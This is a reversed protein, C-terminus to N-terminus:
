MTEELQAQTEGAARKAAVYNGTALGMKAEAVAAEYKRKDAWDASESIAGKGLDRCPNAADAYFENGGPGVLCNITHKLHKHVGATSEAQAAFGAHKAAVGAQEGASGAVATGAALVFAAALTTLPTLRM